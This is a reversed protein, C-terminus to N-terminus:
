KRYLPTEMTHYLTKQYMTQESVCGDEIRPKRYFSNSLSFRPISYTSIYYVRFYFPVAFAMYFYPFFVSYLFIYFPIPLLRFYVFLLYFSYSLMAFGHFLIPLYLFIYSSLFLISYYLVCASDLFSYFSYPLSPFLVSYLFIYFPLPLFHFPISIHFISYYLMSISHFLVSCMCFRPFVFYFIMACRHTSGSLGISIPSLFSPFYFPIAFVM